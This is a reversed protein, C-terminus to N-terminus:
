ASDGDEDGQGRLEAAGRAKINQWADAYFKFARLLEELIFKAVARAKNASKSYLVNSCVAQFTGEHAGSM